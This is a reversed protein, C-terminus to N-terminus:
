SLAAVGQQTIKQSRLDRIKLAMRASAGGHSVLGWIVCEGVMSPDATKKPDAYDAYDPPYHSVEVVGAAEFKREVERFPAPKM